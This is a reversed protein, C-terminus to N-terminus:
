LDTAPHGRRLRHDVAIYKVHMAESDDRPPCIMSGVDCSRPRRSPSCCEERGRYKDGPNITQAKEDEWDYDEEEEEQQGWFGGWVAASDGGHPTANPTQPEHPEAHLDTEGFCFGGAGGSLGGHGGGMCLPPGFRPTDSPQKIKPQSSVVPQCIISTGIIQEPEPEPRHRPSEIEFRVIGDDNGDFSVKRQM